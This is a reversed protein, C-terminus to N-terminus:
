EELQQLCDEVARIADRLAVNIQNRGRMLRVTLHRSAASDPALSALSRVPDLLALPPINLALDQEWRHRRAYLIPVLIRQLAILTANIRETETGEDKGASETLRRTLEELRQAREESLALSFREGAGRQLDGLVTRIERATASFDLPLVPESLFRWITALYIQTDRVLIEADMKDVTDDRTHWWWGTGAGKRPEGGFVAASANVEGPIFPQESLNGYMSSLGIGWFSQDGARKMRRGSWEQGAYQLLIASALAGAEAMSSTDSVVTNGKGGTSDVNVHGVCGEEIEEWFQDAYWTSSSYRGQSHGSWFLLRLGWQWEHRRLACLRAVELMTANAGGNDMAGEYWSCYHGSFMVWRPDRGPLDAQLIPTPRWGTDVTTTLRIRQPGAGLARKFRDGDAADVSIIATTPLLALDEDSPSGWVPSVCMEHLHEHPSIHIQGLAGARSAALAAGPSAIGDLLVIRGTLDLNRLDAVGGPAYILEGEVGEPPTSISFSHVLSRVEVGNWVLQASVPLSIYADHILLRTEYGYGKLVQELYGYAELESATGAHRHWGAIRHVHEMLLTASVQAALESELKRLREM